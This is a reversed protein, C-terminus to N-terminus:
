GQACSGGQIGVCGVWVKLIRFLRFIRFLRLFSITRLLTNNLNGPAVLLAIFQV